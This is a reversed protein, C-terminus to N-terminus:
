CRQLSVHAVRVAVPLSNGLGVLVAAVLLPEPPIGYTERRAFFSELPDAVLVTGELWTKLGSPVHLLDFLEM